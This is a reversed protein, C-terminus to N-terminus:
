GLASRFALAHKRADRAHPNGRLWHGWERLRADTAHTMAVSPTQWVWPVRKPSLVSLRGLILYALRVPDLAEAKLYHASPGQQYSEVVLYVPIGLNGSEFKLWWDTITEAQSTLGGTLDEYFGSGEIQAVEVPCNRRWVGYDIGSTTGPDVAFIGVLDRDTIQRGM